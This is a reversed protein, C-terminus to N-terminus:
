NLKSIIRFLAVIKSIKHFYSTQSNDGVQKSRSCACIAKNFIYKLMYLSIKSYNSRTYEDGGSM